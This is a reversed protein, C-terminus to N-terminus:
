HDISIVSYTAGNLMVSAPIKIDDVYPLQSVVEASRSKATLRYYIGDIEIRSMDIHQITTFTGTITLDHAPMKEPIESWGNFICGEKTPEAELRINSGYEVESTKYIEDDVMYTLIYKNIKFTGTITVDKAPMTVPIVSWGSFTHGEKQPISLPVIKEDEEIEFTKYIEGNVVYTLTHKPMQIFLINRFGNWPTTAKYFDISTRKVYLTANALTSADFANSEGLPPTYANCTIIKLNNCGEFTSQGINTVSNSINVSQLGVCDAFAWNGISIVGNPITLSTLGSCECFASQGISTVSNPIILSALGHCYMFARDEISTVSYEIGNYIISAPISVSGTYSGDNGYDFGLNSTVKAEKKSSDLNYYIGGIKCDFSFAKFGVMIMVGILLLIRKVHIMDKGNIVEYSGLEASKFINNM